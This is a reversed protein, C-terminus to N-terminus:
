LEGLTDLPLLYQRFEGDILEVQFYIGRVSGDYEELMADGPKWLADFGMQSKRIDAFTYVGGSNYKIYVAGPIELPVGDKDAGHLLGRPLELGSVWSKLTAIGEEVSSACIGLMCRGTSADAKREERAKENLVRVADPLSARHRLRMEDEVEDEVAGEGPKSEPNYLRDWDALIRTAEMIKEQSVDTQQHGMKLSLSLSNM